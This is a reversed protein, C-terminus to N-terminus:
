IPGIFTLSESGHKHNLVNFAFHKIFFVPRYRCTPRDRYGLLRLRTSDESARFGPDHTRIGSLTRINVTQTYTHTKRHKNYLYLGQSLSIVRLLLGVSHRLDLFGLHFPSNWPPLGLCMNPSYALSFFIRVHVHEWAKGIELTYNCIKLFVIRLKRAAVMNKWM